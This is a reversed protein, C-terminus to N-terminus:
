FPCEPLSLLNNCETDDVDTKLYKFGETSKAIILNARVGNIEIYFHWEESEIGRIAEAVTLTWRTNNANLGGIYRISEHINNRDFKNVCKVEHSTTM